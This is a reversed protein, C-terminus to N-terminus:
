NGYYFTFNLVKLLYAELLTKNWYLINTAFAGLFQEDHVFIQYSCCGLIPLTLFYFVGKERKGDKEPAEIEM